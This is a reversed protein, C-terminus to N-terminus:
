ECLLKGTKALFTVEDDVEDDCAVFSCGSGGAAGAGADAHLPLLSDGVHITVDGM